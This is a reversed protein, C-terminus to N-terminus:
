KILSERVHPLIIEATGDFVIEAENIADHLSAILTPHEDFKMSWYTAVGFLKSSFVAVQEEISIEGSQRSLDVDSWANLLYIIQAILASSGRAVNEENLM